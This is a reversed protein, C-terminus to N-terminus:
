GGEAVNFWSTQTNHLYNVQKENFNAYLNMDGGGKLITVMINVM